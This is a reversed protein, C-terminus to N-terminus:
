TTGPDSHCDNLRDTRGQERAPSRRKGTRARKGASDPAAIMTHTAPTVPLLERYDPPIKGDLFDMLVAVARRGLERRPVEIHSWDQAGAARVGVDLCGAPAALAILAAALEHSEAVVATVGDGIIRRLLDVDLSAPAIFSQPETRVGLRRGHAVFAALRDDQPATREVAGLYGVSAHGAERSQALVDGLAAHYDPAVYPMRTSVGDRREIFVFPYEERALRELEEATRSLGLLVAGDALRLRNTGNGYISRTGDPGQTSAFLVLDLGMQVAEPDHRL